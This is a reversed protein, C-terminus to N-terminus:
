EIIIKTRYSHQGSQVNLFYIGTKLHRVDLEKQMDFNNMFNESFVTRGTLDLLTVLINDNSNSSMKINFIGNCPNPYVHMSGNESTQGGIFVPQGSYKYIGGQAANTPSSISGLWGTVNDAFDIDYYTIGSGGWSTWTQGDDSSYSIVQNTPTPECSAYISTGPIACMAYRGFNPDLTTIQTWTAGGNSTKWLTLGSYLYSGFYAKALGNNADRFSIDTIQMAAGLTSTFPASVSWTQGADVSRYIRNKSTGFWVLNAGLKTFAQSIGYEGSLPNPIVSGALSAWSTGGDTTRYIEYEGGVPDGVTIGVSPTFFCVFDLFSTGAVTYMNAAAGNTWTAGGDTTHYLVGKDQTSRYFAATWANNADIGEIGSVYYTNTDPFISGSTYTGGGNSTTSFWNYNRSPSNTDFGLAWVVNPNVADLQWAGAATVSFNSNQVTSWMPSVTQSQLCLCFFFTAVFYLKITKM